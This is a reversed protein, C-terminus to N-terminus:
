RRLPKKGISVKPGIDSMGAKRGAQLIDFALRTDEQKQAAEYLIKMETEYEERNM